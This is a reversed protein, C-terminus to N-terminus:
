SSNPTAVPTPQRVSALQDLGIPARGLAVVTVGPLRGLVDIVRRIRPVNAATRAEFDETSASASPGIQAEVFILHNKDFGAEKTFAAFVTRLFLGAGILLIVTSAVQVALIAKRIGLM